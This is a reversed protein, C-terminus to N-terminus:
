RGDSSGGTTQKRSYVREYGGDPDGNEVIEANNKNVMIYKTPRLPTYICRIGDVRRGQKVWAFHARWFPSGEPPYPNSLTDGRKNVLSPGFRDSDEFRFMKGGAEIEFPGVGWADICFGSGNLFEHGFESM